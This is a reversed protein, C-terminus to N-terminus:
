MKAPAGATAICQWKGNPMKMWTDVWREHADIAKDNGDTGKSQWAGGAIATNGFTTV